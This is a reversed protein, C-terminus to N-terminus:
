SQKFLLANMFLVGDVESFNLLGSIGPVNRNLRNFSEQWKSAVQSRLADTAMQHQCSDLEVIKLFLYIFSFNGCGIDDNACIVKEGFREKGVLSLL